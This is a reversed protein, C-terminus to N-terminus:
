EGAKNTRGGSQKALRDLQNNEERGEQRKEGPKGYGVKIRTSQKVKSMSLRRTPVVGRPGCASVWRIAERRDEAWERAEVWEILKLLFLAPVPCHQCENSQLPLVSSFALGLVFM